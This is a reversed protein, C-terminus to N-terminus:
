KKGFAFIKVLLFTVPIGLVAAILYSIFDPVGLYNYFIIVIINQIIYNPIYSIFFKVFRTLYLKTKFVFVANLICAIINAFIYGINFAINADPIVLKVAMAILTCNFTNFCGIILFLLFEKQLFHHKIYDLLNM